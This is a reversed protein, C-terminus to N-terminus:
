ALVDATRQRERGTPEDREGARGLEERELMSAARSAPTDCRWSAACIFADPSDNAWDFSRSRAPRVPARSFNPNVLSSLSFASVTSSLPVPLTVREILRWPTAASRARAFVM